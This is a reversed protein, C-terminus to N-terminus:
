QKLWKFLAYMVAVAAGIKIITVMIWRTISDFGQASKFIEAIPSLTTKIEAMSDELGQLTPTIESMIENKIQVKMKEYDHM